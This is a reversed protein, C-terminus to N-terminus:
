LTILAVVLGAAGLVWLIKEFLEDGNYQDFDNM